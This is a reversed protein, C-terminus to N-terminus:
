HFKCFALYVVSVTCTQSTLFLLARKPTRNHITTAARVWNKYFAEKLMSSDHARQFVGQLMQERQPVVVCVRVCVCVSVEILRHFAICSM